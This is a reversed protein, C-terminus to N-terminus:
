LAGGPGSVKAAVQRSEPSSHCWDLHLAHLRRRGPLSPDARPPGEPRHPPRRRPGRRRDPRRRAPSDPAAAPATDLASELLVLRRPYVGGFVARKGGGRLEVVEAEPVVSFGPEGLEGFVKGFGFAAGLGNQKLGLRLETM